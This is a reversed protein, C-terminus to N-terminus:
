SQEAKEERVAKLKRKAEIAEKGKKLDKETEKLGNIQKEFDDIAKTYESEAKLHCYRRETEGSKKISFTDVNLVRRLSGIIQRAKARSHFDDNGYVANAIENITIGNEWGECPTLLRAVRLMYVPVRGKRAVIQARSSSM